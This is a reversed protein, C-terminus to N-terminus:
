WIKVQTVYYWGLDAMRSFFIIFGEQETTHIVYNVILVQSPLEVNNITKGQSVQRMQKFFSKNAYNEGELQQNSHVLVKGKRSVLYNDGTLKLDSLIGRDEVQNKIKALTLFLIMEPSTKDISQGKKNLEKAVIDHIKEAQNVTEVALKKKIRNFNKFRSLSFNNSKPQGASKKYWNMAEEIDKKVGLGNEYIWGLQYQSSKDGQQAAKKFWSVAQEYNEGQLYMLGLQYQLKINGQEAESRILSLLQNDAADAEFTCNTSVLLGILILVLVIKRKNMKVGKKYSRTADFKVKNFFKIHMKFNKMMKLGQM